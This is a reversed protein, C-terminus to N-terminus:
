EASHSTASSMLWAATRARLSISPTTRQPAPPDGDEDFAAVAALAPLPRTQDRPRLHALAGAEVARASPANAGGAVIERKGSRHASPARGDRGVLGRVAGDTSLQAELPDRLASRRHPNNTRGRRSVDRFSSSALSASAEGPSRKAAHAIADGIVYATEGNTAAVPRAEPPVPLVM